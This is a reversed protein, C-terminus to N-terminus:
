RPLTTPVGTGAPRSHHSPDTSRPHGGPPGGSVSPFVHLEYRGGGTEARHQHECRAPAPGLPAGALLGALLRGREGLLRRLGDRGRRLLVHLRQRRQPHGARDAVVALLDRDVHRQARGAVARAVQRQALVGAELDEADAPLGPDLRARREPLLEGARGRRLDGLSRAVLPDGEGTVLGVVEGLDAVEVRQEVLEVLLVLPGGGLDLPGLLDVALLGHDDGAGGVLAVGDLGPHGGLVGVVDELELDVLAVLGAADVEGVEIGLKSRSAGASSSTKSM